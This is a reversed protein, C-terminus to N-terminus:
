NVSWGNEATDSLAGVQKACVRNFLASKLSSPWIALKPKQPPVIKKRTTPAIQQPTQLKVDLCFSLALHTQQVLRDLRDRAPSFVSLASVQGHQLRPMVRMVVATTQEHLM